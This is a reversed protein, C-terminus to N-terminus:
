SVLFATSTETKAATDATRIDNGDVHQRSKNEREYDDQSLPQQRTNGSKDVNVSTFIAATAKALRRGLNVARAATRCQEPKKRRVKKAENQGHKSHM